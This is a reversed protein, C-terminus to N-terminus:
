AAIIVGAAAHDDNAAVRWRPGPERAVLPASSSPPLLTDLPSQVAGGGVKLVHTYIMTTSVDAHGLLAQVTRIDQGRQLLHTAFSHRLTHPTAPKHIHATILARKFARQFPQDQLHHRRRLGSRPDVSLEDQPFVWHWTWSLPARPFKRELADPMWVGARGAQRDARYLLRAHALQVRLPERLTEPLMLARDKNGKGERVILTRRQFDIDKVRLRLAEAIRMGTGYLLQAILLHEGNLEAFLARIEQPHLVVPLRRRERPRGIQALWPMDTGLVRRYLFLLASLAQRHTSAAVGRDAAIHTLFAEVEAAGMERPHRMHHFRVYSRVWHVYQHETSLSYHCARVVRRVEDLLRPPQAIADSEDVNHTL